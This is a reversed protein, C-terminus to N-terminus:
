GWGVELTSAAEWHFLKGFVTSSWLLVLKCDLGYQVELHPPKINDWCLGSTKILSYAPHWHKSLLGMIMIVIVYKWIYSGRGHGSVVQNNCYIEGCVPCLATLKKIAVQEGELTSWWMSCFILHATLARGACNIERYSLSFVEWTLLVSFTIFHLTWLTSINLRVTLSLLAPNPGCCNVNISSCSTM